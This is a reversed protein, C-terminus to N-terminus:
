ASSGQVIRLVPARFECDATAGQVFETRLIVTARTAGAPLRARLTLPTWATSVLGPSAATLPDSLPTLISPPLSADRDAGRSNSDDREREWVIADTGARAVGVADAGALWRTAAALSGVVPVHRSPSPADLALILTPRALAPRCADHACSLRQDSSVAHMHPARPRSRPRPSRQRGSPSPDRLAEVARHCERKGARCLCAVELVIPRLSDLAREPDAAGRERLAHCLDVSQLTESVGGVSFAGAHPCATLVGRVLRPLKRFSPFPSRPVTPPFLSRTQLLAYARSISPSPAGSMLPTPPSSSNMLAPLPDFPNSVAARRLAAGRSSITRASLDERSRGDRGGNGDDRREGRSGAGEGRDNAGEDDDTCDGLLAFSWGGPPSALARRAVEEWSGEPTAADEPIAASPSEDGFPCREPAPIASGAADIGEDGGVVSEPSGALVEEDDWSFSISGLTCIWLQHTM